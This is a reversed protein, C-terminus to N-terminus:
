DRTVQWVGRAGKKPKARGQRSLSALTGRIRKVDAESDSGYVAKALHNVSVPGRRLVAEAQDTFFGGSVPGSGTSGAGENPAGGSHGNPGPRPRLLAVIREDRQAELESVRAKAEDIEALIPGLERVDKEIRVRDDPSLGAVDVETM